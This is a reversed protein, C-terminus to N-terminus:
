LDLRLRNLIIYIPIQLSCRKLFYNIQPIQTSREYFIELRYKLTSGSALDLEQSTKEKQGLQYYNWEFNVECTSTKLASKSKNSVETKELNLADQFIHRASCNSSLLIFSLSIWILHKFSSLSYLNLKMKNM